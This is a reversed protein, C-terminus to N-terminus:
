AHPSSLCRDLLQQYHDVFATVAQGAPPPPRIASRLRSWLAPDRIASAMRRSLDASSGALFHLGDVGDRVKEAMGGIDSCILPRRHRFAEQIVLPSNEWWISPLVVWDVAKMRRPLDEPAYPGVRRLGPPADEFLGTIRNRFAEDFVQEGGGHVELSAKQQLEAPLMRYAEVAVELGKFPTIQGFYAFRAPPDGAALPEAPAEATDPLLNEQLRIREAPLGWDIYRRRLFESPALFRDVQKFFSKIYLERLLYDQPSRGPLCAHCEGPSSRHCLAGNSKLMQGNQHCIALYEHLTLVIPVGPLTNRVVRLAEIGFGVYHHFHVIDPRLRRLLEALDRWLDRPERAAFDFSESAGSFLIECPDPRLGFASGTHRLGPVNSRALFYSEWDATQNLARHLAHAALEAGGKSFAPHGHALILVRRKM